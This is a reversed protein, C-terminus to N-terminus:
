LEKPHVELEIANLEDIEGVEMRKQLENAIAYSSHGTALGTTLKDNLQNTILIGIIQIQIM